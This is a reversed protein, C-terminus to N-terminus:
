SFQEPLVLCIEFSFSDGEENKLLPFYNQCM